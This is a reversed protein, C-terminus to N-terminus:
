AGGEAKRIQQRASRVIAPWQLTVYRVHGSPAQQSWGRDLRGMYPCDSAIVKVERPPMTRLTALARDLTAQGVPDFPTLAFDPPHQGKGVVAWSGRAAGTKVPTGPGFRNGVIIAEVALEAARLVIQDARAGVVKAHRSWDGKGSVRCRFM